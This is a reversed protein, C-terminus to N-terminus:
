GNGAQVGTPTATLTWSNAVTTTDLALNYKASGTLPYRTGGYISTLSVNYNNNMMKYSALKQAIQIMEGQMAVRNGRTVYKKYNPIAIAALIGIIAIVVMLEILSFGNVKKATMM